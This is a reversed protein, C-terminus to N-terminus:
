RRGMHFGHEADPGVFVDSRDVTLREGVYSGALNGVIEGFVAGLMSNVQQRSGSVSGSVFAGSGVGGILGGVVSAGFAFAGAYFHGVLEGHGYEEGTAWSVNEFRIANVLGAEIMAVAGYLAAYGIGSSVGITWVPVALAAIVGGAIGNNAIVVLKEVPNCLGDLGGSLYTALVSAFAGVGFAIVM